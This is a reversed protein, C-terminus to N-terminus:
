PSWLYEEGLFGTEAELQITAPVRGITREKLIPDPQPRTLMLFAHHGQLTEGTPQNRQQRECGAIGIFNIIIILAM